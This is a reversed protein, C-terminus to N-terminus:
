TENYRHQCLLNIWSWDRFSTYLVKKKKKQINIWLKQLINPINRQFILFIELIRLCWSVITTPQPQCPSPHINELLNSRGGWKCVINEPWIARYYILWLILLLLLLLDNVFLTRTDFVYNCFRTFNAGVMKKVWFILVLFAHNVVNGLECCFLTFAM